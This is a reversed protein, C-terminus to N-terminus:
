ACFATKAMADLPAKYTGAPRGTVFAAVARREAPSLAAGQRRMSFSSLATDVVEPSLGRLAERSPIRPLSRDHCAACHEKYLAEGDPVSQQASAVSPLASVLVALALRSRM